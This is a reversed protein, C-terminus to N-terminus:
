RVARGPRASGPVGLPSRQALYIPVRIAPAARGTVDSPLRADTTLGTSAAPMREVPLLTSYLVDTVPEPVVELDPVGAGLREQVWGEHAEKMAKLREVTYVGEQSDVLQHHEQCLLMLNSYRNREVDDLTALGRPGDRREAVIHAIEGLM